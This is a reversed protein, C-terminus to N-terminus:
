ARKEAELTMTELALFGPPMRTDNELGRFELDESQQLGHARIKVFGAALLATSLTDRDYIFQHGWARVFNNFVTAARVPEGPNFVGCAWAIYDLDIKDFRRVLDILFNLNPTSIRIRGGPELVRNCERLMALGGAYPVHEIMHESFVRSFIGDNFPFRQTADLQTISPHCPNLDTNWWGPLPHDGSGINLKM